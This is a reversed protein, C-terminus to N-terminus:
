RKLFPSWAPLKAGSQRTVQRLRGSEVDVVWLQRVGSRTSSFILHRGDPAWSPDENEGESTYQKTSGDRMDITMIQFNRGIRSQYAVMRGDPAWDPSARWGKEGYTYETLLQVNTGDVDMTYIEPHGARGSMFAIRRGDPSFTPSTNDSGRGVTIRRHPSNDNTNALVINTGVEAGNAYALLNGDPSFVPTINLGRASSSKRRIEGTTFDYIAIQAGRSTFESYALKTGSPHWAPSLAFEHGGKTIQRPNAGDSDIVWIENNQTYAIRTAAAGRSGFIWLGIQDAANHVAMRWEPSNPDSPLPFTGTRVLKQSAVDYLDITLGALTPRPHIMGAIGLKSLLAFNVKRGMSPIYAAAEDASLMVIVARDDYDIDRQLIARISDPGDIDTPLVLLGPKTGLQYNLGLRVGPAGDTEQASVATSSISGLFIAGVILAVLIHFVRHRRVGDSQHASTYLSLHM